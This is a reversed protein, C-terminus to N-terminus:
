PAGAKASGNKYNYVSPRSLGLERAIITVAGRQNFYGQRYLYGVVERKDANSLTRGTWNRQILFRDIADKIDIDFWDVSASFGELFRPRLIFGFTASEAIESVLDPNGSVTGTQSANAIFSTFEFVNLDSTRLLATGTTITM